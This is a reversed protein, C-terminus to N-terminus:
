MEQVVPLIMPRRRTQEYLFKGVAEKIKSQIFGLEALGTGDVQLAQLAREKAADLLEESNRAYVFGRSVLDPGALVRGTQRDVTVVVILVGDKALLQRDRLVVEGVEGVTVGDVLVDGAQVKGTIKGYNGQQRFEMVTGPDALLINAAPIGCEEALRGYLVMHRYEGHAPVAFQPRLLNIMLRLEERSAHGSVHVMADSGYIVDVGQRFLNNITRAVAEENGPVPTASIIVTDGPKLQIHRHEKNAIRSLVSTPEGQSGTTVYLIKDPPLKNVEEVRLLAGDPITIYDLEQAIAINNEMSRGVVAAKRGYRHASQIAQQVRSINSAFTTILVRGEAREFVRDFTEMVLRESPTFGPQEVRTCDSVLVLVGKAGMEALRGFDTVKGDMPSQDFKFDSTYMLTGVPSHVAVSLADPISHAVRIFEVTFEGFRVTDGSEVVLQEVSGLLRHEKLKVSILGQALRTAYIPVSVQPLIYPLAGTHDEHGHSIVIARVKERNELLYSVDPIVLDIGLMEDEPFMLGCDLVVIDDGYEVVWMNKGIEGVGGLPILKLRKQAM